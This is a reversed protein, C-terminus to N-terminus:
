LRHAAMAPTNLACPRHRSHTELPMNVLALAVSAGSGRIDEVFDLKAKLYKNQSGTDSNVALLQM